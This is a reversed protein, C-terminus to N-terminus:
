GGGEKPSEEGSASGASKLRISDIFLAAGPCCGAGGFISYGPAHRSEPERGSDGTPAARAAGAGPRAVPGLRPDGRSRM